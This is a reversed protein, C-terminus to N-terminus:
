IKKLRAKKESEDGAFRTLLNYKPDNQDAKHPIKEKEIVSFLQDRKTEPLQKSDFFIRHELMPIHIERLLAGGVCLPGALPGRGAEDIALITKYGKEFIEKETVIHRNSSSM